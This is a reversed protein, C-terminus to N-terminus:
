KKAAVHDIYEKLCTGCVKFQEKDNPGSTVIQLVAIRVGCLECNYINDDTIPLFRCHQQQHFHQQQFEPPQRQEYEKSSEEMITM